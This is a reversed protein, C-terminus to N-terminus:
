VGVYIIKNLIIAPSLVTHAAAAGGGAGNGTGAVIAAVTAAFSTIGGYQNANGSTPINVIGGASINAAFNVNSVNVPVSGSGGVPVTLAQSATLGPLQALTNIHNQLGGNAGLVTGDFNGGAVTIRNAAVGGMDDKGYPARGRLDPLNFTTAGDGSGYLTGIIAFLAAYTTRSVAQGFCLLWFPPAAAAGWDAFIGVPITGPIGTSTIAFIQVGQIVVGIQGTGARYFGTNEENDFTLSPAPISGDAAKLAGSMGAEGNRPLSGTLAAAIDSLDSNM